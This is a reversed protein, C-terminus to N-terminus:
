TKSEEFGLVFLNKTASSIRLMGFPEESHCQLLISYRCPSSGIKSPACPEVVEGCAVSVFAKSISENPNRLKTSKAVKTTFRKNRNQQPQRQPDMM